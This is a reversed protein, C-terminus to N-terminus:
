RLEDRRARYEDVFRVAARTAEVRWRVVVDDLSRDDATLADLQEGLLRRQADLMPGVDLDYTEAFVLKLLLESRLDRLHEVPTAVWRGFRTRGTRTVALIRRNPGGVGAEEAVPRVWGREVLRDLSRYTLPRSLQWVRGIDGDPRLRRAVAWGHAPEGYLVGLCAWEGVLPGGAANM